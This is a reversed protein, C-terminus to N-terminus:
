TACSMPAAALLAPGAARSGSLRPRRQVLAGCRVRGPADQGLRYSSSHFDSTRATGRCAPPKAHRLNLGQPPPPRRGPDAATPTAPTLGPRRVLARRPQAARAARLLPLGRRYTGTWPLRLYGDLAAVFRGDQARWPWPSWGAGAPGSEQPTPGSAQRWVERRVCTTRGPQSVSRARATLGAGAPCLRRRGPLSPSQEAVRQSGSCPLRRAAARPQSCGCPERGSSAWGSSVHQGRVPMKHGRFPPSRRWTRVISAPQARAPRAGARASSYGFNIAPLVATFDPQGVM